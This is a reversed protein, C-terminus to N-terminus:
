VSPRRAGNFSAERRLVGPATPGEHTDQDWDGSRRRVSGPTRAPSLRKTSGQGIRRFSSELEHSAASRESARLKLNDADDEEIELLDDDFISPGDDDGFLSKGKRAHYFTSSRRAKRTQGTGAHYFSQAAKGGAGGRARAPSRGAPKQPLGRKGGGPKRPPSPKADGAGFAVPVRRRGDDSDSEDIITNESDFLSSALTRKTNKSRLGERSGTRSGPASRAAATTAQKESEEHTASKPRHPSRHRSSREGSRDRDRDRDRRKDKRSSRDRDRDRKGDRDRGRNGRRDGDRKDDRSGSGHDRSRDRSRSATSQGTMPRADSTRPRHDASVPTEALVAAAAAAVPAGVSSADGTRPRADGTMPRAGVAPHTHTDLPTYKSPNPGVFTSPAPMAAASTMPAGKGLEADFDDKAMSDHMDLANMSEVTTLSDDLVAHLRKPHLLVATGYFAICTTLSDMMFVVKYRFVDPLAVAVVATVPLMAFWLSVFLVFNKFFAKHTDDESNKIRLRSGIWFWVLAAFRLSLVVVGAESDHLMLVSAKSGDIEEWLFVVLYAGLFVVSLVVAAIVRPFKIVVRRGACCAEIGGVVSVQLVIFAVVSTAWLASAATHAAPLGVGDGAFVFLHGAHLLFALVQFALVPVFAWLAKSQKKYTSAHFRSCLLVALSWVLTFLSWLSAVGAAELVLQRDVGFEKQLFGGPNRFHLRYDLTLGGFFNNLGGCNALAVHWFRPRTEMWVVQRLRREGGDLVPHEYSAQAVFHTCNPRVGSSREAAAAAAAEKGTVADLLLVHVNQAYAGQSTFVMDLTAADTDSGNALLVQPM